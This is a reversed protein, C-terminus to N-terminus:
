FKYGNLEDKFQELYEPKIIKPIYISELVASTIRYQRRNSKDTPAPLPEVIHGLIFKGEIFRDCLDLDKQLDDVFGYRNKAVYHYFQAHKNEGPNFKPNIMEEPTIKDSRRNFIGLCNIFFSKLTGKQSKRTKEFTDVKASVPKAIREKGFKRLAIGFNLNAQTSDVKTIM